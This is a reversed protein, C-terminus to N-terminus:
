SAKIIITIREHKAVNMKWNSPLCINSLEDTSIFTKDEEDNTM